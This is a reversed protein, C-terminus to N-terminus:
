DGRWNWAGLRDLLVRMRNGSSRFLTSVYPYGDRSVKVALVLWSGEQEAPQWFMVGEGEERRDIATGMELIAPIHAFDGIDIGGHKGIKQAMTAPSIAVVSSRAGLVATLKPAIAAPLHARERKLALQLPVDSAWLDSITKQAIPLEDREAGGIVEIKQRLNEVVVKARGLGSNTHWGPDIGVPVHTVEGTRRNVFPQTEIIPRDASYFKAESVSSLLRDRERRTIQRVTCKCGWGNPPFHSRWFPDDVPLITGAWGLHEPRPDSATTRVYLLFPLAEKTRQIRDWQGAARAANMNSWFITKLRRPNSFDVLRDPDAGTPDAVARKGWWGLRRLEPEIEAKWSELGQGTDIAKRISDRFATLLDLETAKAVTFASAHEEGWVDLWSFRPALGKERFYDVVEPAPGFGRRPTPDAM